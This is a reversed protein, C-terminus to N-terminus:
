KVRARVRQITTGEDPKLMEATRMFYLDDNPGVAAFAGLGDGPSQLVVVQGDPQIVYLKVDLSTTLVPVGDASRGADRYPTRHVVEVIIRGDSLVDTGFVTDGASNKPEPPRYPVGVPRITGLPSGEASFRYFVLESEPRYYISGHPGQRLWGRPARAKKGTDAESTARGFSRVLTGQSDFHHIAHSSGSALVFYGGGAAAVIPGLSQREAELGLTTADVLSGREDLTAVEGSATVVRM